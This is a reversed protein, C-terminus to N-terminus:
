TSATGLPAAREGVANVAVANAGFHLSGASTSWAGDVNGIVLGNAAPNGLVALTTYDVLGTLGAMGTVAATSSALNNQIFNNGTMLIDTSATTLFRIVGVGVASSAGIVKNGLFKLRDAGVFQIMTTCAAATAGYIENNVMSLDDAAATTTIGITVLSNADTGMRIKCGIIACGAGSITMPAAVTVTGTGPDMNLILNELSVNDQNMLWTATAATWTFTPRLNGHGCGIIRTGAVLNSMKAATDINETHGALVYVVDGRGARCYSLAQNLTTYVRRGIQQDDGNVPSGSRVYFAQAGPPLMTGFETRIGAGLRYSPLQKYLDM